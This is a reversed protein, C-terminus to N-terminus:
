ALVPPAMPPPDPQLTDTALQLDFGEKRIRLDYYLLTTVVAVFSEFVALLVGAIPDVIGAGFGTLTIGFNVVFMAGFMGAVFIVWAVGVTALIHGVYGKTLERSRDFSSSAGLGELLVVPLMAFSWAFFIFAPVVLLILGVGVILGQFISALIVAVFRNGVEHMSRRVDVGRGTYIDSVILVVVATAAVQTLRSLIGAILQTPSFLWGLLIPPLLFVGSALVVTSYHARLLQFAADLIEGPTRARLFPASM